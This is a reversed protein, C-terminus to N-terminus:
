AAGGLIMHTDEVVLEFDDADFHKKFPAVMWNVFTHPDDSKNYAEIYDPSILDIIADAAQDANM